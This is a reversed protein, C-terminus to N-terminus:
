NFSRTYRCLLRKKVSTTAPIRVELQAELETRKKPNKKISVYQRTHIIVVHVHRVIQAKLKAGVPFFKHLSMM